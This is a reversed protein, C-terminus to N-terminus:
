RRTLCALSGTAPIDLGACHFFGGGGTWLGSLLWDKGLPFIRSGWCVGFLSRQEAGGPTKVHHIQVTDAFRTSILMEQHTPHWSQFRASRVNQYPILKRVLELPVQPVGEAVISPPAQGCLFGALYNGSM